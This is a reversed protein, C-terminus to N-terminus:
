PRIVGKRLIMNAYLAPEGTAVIVHAARVRPYFEAPLLPHVRFDPAQATCVALMDGHIPALTDRDAGLTSRFIAGDVFDDLPLVSLIARIMPCISVGDARVVRRGHEIAPYNGDVIAIEDGHGMGRLVALLEPGLLPDLGILM